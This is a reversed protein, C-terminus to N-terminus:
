GEAVRVALADLWTIVSKEAVGQLVPRMTRAALGGMSQAALVSTGRPGGADLRFAYTTVSGASKGTFRLQEPAELVDIVANITAPGTKFSFRSGVEVVRSKMDLDKLTSYWVSWEEVGSLVDWVDEPGAPIVISAGAIVAGSVDLAKAVDRDGTATAGPENDSM